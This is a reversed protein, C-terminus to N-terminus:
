SELFFLRYVFLALEETSADKIVLIRMFKLFDHISIKTYETIINIQFLVRLLYM